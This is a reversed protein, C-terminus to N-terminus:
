DIVVDTDWELFKARGLLRELAQRKQTFKMRGSGGAMGFMDRVNNMVCHALCDGFNRGTDFGAVHSSLADVGHCGETRHSGSGAEVRRGATLNSAHTRLAPTRQSLKNKIAVPANRFSDAWLKRRDRNEASNRPIYRISDLYVTQSLARFGRMDVAHTSAGHIAPTQAFLTAYPGGRTDNVVWPLHQLM